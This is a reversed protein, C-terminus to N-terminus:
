FLWPLLNNFDLAEKEKSFFYMILILITEPSYILFSNANRVHLCRKRIKKEQNETM